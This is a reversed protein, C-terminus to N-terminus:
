HCPRSIPGCTEKLASIVLDVLTAAIQSVAFSSRLMVANLQAWTGPCLNHSRVTFIMRTTENRWQCECTSRAKFRCIGLCLRDKLKRTLQKMSTGLLAETLSTSWTRFRTVTFCTAVNAVDGEVTINQEITEMDKNGGRCVDILASSFSM